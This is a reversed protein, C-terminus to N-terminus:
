FGTAVELVGRRGLKLTAKTNFPLPWNKEGHGCPMGRLVPIASERAFSELAEQTRDTGDAEKGDTFDGLVIARVGELLGAQSLHVLMRHIAYGREGVDELFLIKGRGELEWATGISCELLRLNGGTVKGKITRAKKAADNMPILGKYTLTKHEGRLLEAYLARDPAKFGMQTLVRGHITPWGWSQGIFLHLATIDSFGILLKPEKPKKLKMLYPILRASGYGGRLCWLTQNTSAFAAKIHKLQNALPSAFFLKPKLLDSPLEPEFDNKQLWDLGLNLREVPAASAPAIIHVSERSHHPRWKM